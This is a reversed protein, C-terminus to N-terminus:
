TIFTIKNEFNNKKIFLIIENKIRTSTCEGIIDLFVSIGNLNLQKFVELLVLIGKNKDVMSLYLLRVIDHHERNRCIATVIHPIVPVGNEIAFTKLVKPKIFKFERELLLPSLHIIISNTFVWRYLILLFKNKLATEIGKGHLHYIPVKRFIKILLVFLCDRLFMKGTPVITFYIFKIDSHSLKLILRIVLIIMKLFKQITVKHNQQLCNSFRIGIIEKSIVSNIISSQCILSNINTVGHNPPPLQIFYLIKLKNM